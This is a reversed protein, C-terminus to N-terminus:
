KSGESLAYKGCKGCRIMGREHCFFEGQVVFHLIYGSGASRTKLQQYKVEATGHLQGCECHVEMM